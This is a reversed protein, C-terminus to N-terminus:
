VDRLCRTLCPITGNKFAEPQDFRLEHMISIEMVINLDYDCVYSLTHKFCTLLMMEQYVEVQNSM